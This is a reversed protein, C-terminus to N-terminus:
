GHDKVRGPASTRRRYEFSRPGRRSGPGPRRGVGRLGPSPRPGGPGSRGAAPRAPRRGPAAVPTQGPQPGGRTRGGQQRRLGCPCSGHPSGRREVPGGVRRGAVPPRGVHSARGPARRPHRPRVRRGAQRPPRRAAGTVLRVPQPPGQGPPDVPDGPRCPDAHAAPLRPDQRSAPQEAPLHAQESPPELCISIPRRPRSAKLAGRPTM